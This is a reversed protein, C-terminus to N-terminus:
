TGAPPVFTIFSPLRVGEMAAEDLGTETKQHLLNPFAAAMNGMHALTVASVGDQDAAVVESLPHLLYAVARMNHKMAAPAFKIDDLMQPLQFKFYFVLHLTPRDRSQLLDIVRNFMGMISVLALVYDWSTSRTVRQNLQELLAIREEDDQSHLLAEIVIRNRLISELMSLHSNWRVDIATKLVFEEVYHVTLGLYHLRSYKEGWLDATLAGAMSENPVLLLTRLLAALDIQALKHIKVINRSLTTPHPMLGYQGDLILRAKMRKGIDLLIEFLTKISESAFSQYPRGDNVCVRVCGETVRRKTSRDPAVTSFEDLTRQRIRNTNRFRVVTKSCRTCVCFATEDGFLDTMTDKCGPSTFSTPPARTLLGDKELLELVKKSTLAVSNEDEEGVMDDPQSGGDNEDQAPDSLVPLDDPWNPYPFSPMSM